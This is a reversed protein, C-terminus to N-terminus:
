DDSDYEQSIKDNKRFISSKKNAVDYAEDGSNESADEEDDPKKM